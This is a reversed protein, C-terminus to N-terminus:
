FMVIIKKLFCYIPIKKEGECLRCSNEGITKCYPLEDQLSRHTVASLQIDPKFIASIGRLLYCSDRRISNVDVCTIVRCMYPYWFTNTYYCLYVCMTQMRHALVM